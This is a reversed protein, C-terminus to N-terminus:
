VDDDHMCIYLGVAILAGEFLIVYVINWDIM